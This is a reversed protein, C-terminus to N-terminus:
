MFSAHGCIRSRPPATQPATEDTVKRTGKRATRRLRFSGNGSVTLSAAPAGCFPNVRKLAKYMIEDRRHLRNQFEIRQFLLL